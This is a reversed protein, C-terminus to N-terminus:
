SATLNQPAGPACKIGSVYPVSNSPGSATSPTRATATTTISASFIFDGCVVPVNATVLNGAVDQTGVVPGGATRTWSLTTKAIDAAPLPVGDIYVTPRDWSLTAVPGAAQSTPPFAMVLLAVAAVLLLGAWCFLRFRDVPSDPFLRHPQM